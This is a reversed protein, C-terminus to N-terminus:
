YDWSRVARVFIEQSFGSCRCNGFDYSVIWQFPENMFSDSTWIWWQQSDFLSDMYVDDDNEEVDMLSMAEELTPLRWNDFGGYKKFNLQRVYENAKRYDLKSNSGNRQWMLGTAFDLIVREDNIRRAVFENQSIIAQPNRKTDFFNFKKIMILVDEGSLQIPTARLKLKPIFRRSVTNKQTESNGNKLTTILAPYQHNFDSFDFFLRNKLLTPLSTSDLICPIILKQSSIASEWELTVWYSNSAAKSWVLLFTDCWDIGVGIEKPLSDGGKLRNSDIWVKIEDHLLNEAIKHAFDNDECSHSIFVKRM